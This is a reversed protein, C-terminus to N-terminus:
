ADLAARLATRLPFGRLTAARSVVTLPQDWLVIAALSPIKKLGEQVIHLPALGPGGLVILAPEHEAAARALQRAEQELIRMTIPHRRYRIEVYVPRGSVWVRCDPTDLIEPRLGEKWACTLFDLEM